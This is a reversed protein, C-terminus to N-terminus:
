KLVEVLKAGTIEIKCESSHDDEHAKDELKGALSTLSFSFEYTKGQVVVYDERDLEIRIKKGEAKEAMVLDIKDLKRADDKATVLIKNAGMLLKISQEHSFLHSSAGSASPAKVEKIVSGEVTDECLNHSDESDDDDKPIDDKPIDQNPVDSNAIDTLKAIQPSAASVSGPQGCNQFALLLGIATFLLVFIKMQEGLSFDSLYVDITENSLARSFICFITVKFLDFLGSLM